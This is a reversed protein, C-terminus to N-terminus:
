LSVGYAAIDSRRFVLQRCSDISPGAVPSVGLDNLRTSLSRSSTALSKALDRGFIFTAEFRTLEDRTVWLAPRRGIRRQEAVLLNSRVLSYIVEQKVRMLTAVNMMSIYGVDDTPTPGCLSRFFSRCVMVDILKTTCRKRAAIVTGDQLANLLLTAAQNSPLEYRFLWDLTVWKSTDFEEDIVPLQEIRDQFQELWTNPIM